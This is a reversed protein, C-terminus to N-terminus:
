ASAVVGHALHFSPPKPGGVNPRGGGKLIPVAFPDTTRVLSARTRSGWNLTETGALSRGPAGVSNDRPTSQLLM